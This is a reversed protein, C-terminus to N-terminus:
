FTITYKTGGVQELDLTGRLQQVLSDVLMLGLSRNEGPEVTRTHSFGIGNDAIVLTYRYEIDETESTQQKERALSVKIIGKRGDTFAHKMANTVLENIVLGLPIATEIDLTFKEIELKLDFHNPHIAYTSTLNRILSEIYERFNIRALDESQYLKEHVLAMARVREQSNRFIELTQPDSISRAQLKLLSVIVQLNNKVRHHVEKLLVEKEKLAEKIREENKKRDSIDTILGEYHSVKGQSDRVVRGNEMVTIIRGDKRRLTIETNRLIGDEELKQTLAKREGPDIYFIRANAAQCFEEESDYGLMNVLAPNAALITGDPKTQYVGELINEFLGRYKAESKRLADEMEQLNVIEAQLEKNSQSLELTRERVRNHLENQIHLIQQEKEQM